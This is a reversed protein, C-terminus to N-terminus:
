FRENKSIEVNGQYTEFVSRNKGQRKAEYMCNDAQIVFSDLNIKIQAPVSVAGVSVTINIVCDGIDIEMAEIKKVIEEAFRKQIDETCLLVAFEEGGWRCVTGKEGVEESLFSAIQKLVIDGKMHGYTDNINKFGDLDLVILTITNASPEDLTENMIQNFGYRNNVGTLADHRYLYEYQRRSELLKENTAVRVTELFFSITFFAIYLFPFRLCFAKTYEYDLMGQGISTYFFFCLVILMLACLMSGRKRGFLLLGSTPLICIWIASFGDPIGSIIFFLFICVIEASFAVKSIELGLNSQRSIIMNILCVVGFILTVCMLLYEQTFANVASMFFSVIGLIEFAWLFQLRERKEDNVLSEKLEDWYRTIKEGILNM